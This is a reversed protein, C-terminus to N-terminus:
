NLLFCEKGSGEDSRPSDTGDFAEVYLPLLERQFVVVYVDKVSEPRKKAFGEVAERM